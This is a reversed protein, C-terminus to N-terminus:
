SFHVQALLQYDEPCVPISDKPHTPFSVCDLSKPRLTLPSIAQNFFDDLESYPASELYTGLTIHPTFSNAKPDLTNQLTHTTGTLDKCSIYPCHPFTALHDLSIAPATLNLSQIQQTQDLINKLNVEDDAEAIDVLFGAPAVTLHPKQVPHFQIFKALDLQLSQFIEQLKEQDFRYMWVAFLKRGQHWTPFPKLQAALTKM